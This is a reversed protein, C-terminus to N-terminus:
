HLASHGIETAQLQKYAWLSIVGLGFGLPGPAAAILARGVLEAVRSVRDATRIYRLDDAGIQAQTRRRIDDIAAAFSSADFSPSFTPATMATDASLSDSQVAVATVTVTFPTLNFRRRRGWPSRATLMTANTMMTAF